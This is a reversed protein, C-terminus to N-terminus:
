ITSRQVDPISRVSLELESIRGNIGLLTRSLICALSSRQGSGHGDVSLGDLVAAVTVPLITPSHSKTNGGDQVM